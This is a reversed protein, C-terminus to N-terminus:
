SRKADKIEQDARKQAEKAAQKSLGLDQLTQGISRGSALGTLIASRTINPNRAGLNTALRTAAVYQGFKLNPNTLLAGQYGRRLDNATTHLKAAMQPHDRLEHDAQQSNQQQLRARELGADSRGGSRDSATGRGSDARGGSRDSSTGM